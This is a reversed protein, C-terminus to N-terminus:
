RGHLHLKLPETVGASARAIFDAETESIDRSLTEGGMIMAVWAEGTEAACLLIMSPGNGGRGKNPVLRDVRSKLTM